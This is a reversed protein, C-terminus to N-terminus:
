PGSARRTVAEARAGLLPSAEVLRLALADLEALLAPDMRRTWREPIEERGWYAGALMGAIAGNTDADGGENVVGVLCEEFGRARFFHHLVTRVSDAVYGSAGGRYPEFAFARHAEALARCEKRMRELSLGLVAVQVLKGLLVSAADSLPHNHTLHGQAVAWEALLGFDGLTRLAVPLVRMAAGNGADWEGPPAELRGELLYARLGRRCTNGVDIPGRKLWEALRDAVRRLEFGGAEDLARAVCLAMETDDTVRGPALRLWGGGTMERHEGRARIEGATMFEVPAGLADGVAFGLFAARARARVDDLHFRLGQM